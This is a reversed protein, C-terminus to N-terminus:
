ADIGLKTLAKEILPLGLCNGTVAAYGLGVIPILLFIPAKMGILCILAILAFHARETNTM